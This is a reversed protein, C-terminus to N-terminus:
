NCKPNTVTVSKEKIAKNGALDTVTIRIKYIGNPSTQSECTGVDWGGKLQQIVGPYPPVYVPGFGSDTVAILWNGVHGTSTDSISFDSPDFNFYYLRDGSGIYETAGEGKLCADKQFTSNMKWYTGDFLVPKPVAAIGSPGSIEYEIKNPPFVRPQNDIRDGVEFIIEM